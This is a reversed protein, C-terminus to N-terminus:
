TAAIRLEGDDQVELASRARFGCDHVAFVVARFIVEYAPDFPCNIFVNEAYVSPRTTV